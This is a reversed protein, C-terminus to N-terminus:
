FEVSLISAVQTTADKVSLAPYLGNSVNAGAISSIGAVSQPVVFLQTGTNPSVVIDFNSSTVSSAGWKGIVTGGIASLGVMTTNANLTIVSSAIPQGMQSQLSPFAPPAGPVSQNMKDVPVQKAYNAM